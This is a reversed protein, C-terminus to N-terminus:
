QRVPRRPRRERRTATPETAARARAVTDICETVLATWGTQHSAGVGRGTDGHFYENFLVLGKWHADRAYRPDSGHSPRHGDPGPLFLSALRRSLEAAVETLTLWRGSGQPCEVRVADGHFHGYKELAEILLYNVPFWV